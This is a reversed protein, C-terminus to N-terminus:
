KVIQVKGNQLVSNNNSVRYIYTGEPLNAVAIQANGNVQQNAVVAGSMSYIMVNVTGDAKVNLVDRAPNPYFSVETVATTRGNKIVVNIVKSYQFTGDNDIQKLRYYNNGDTTNNDTYTYTNNGTGEANMSGIKEFSSGDASHEIDFSATNKEEATKWTLGAANNVAEGDFSVWTLALPNASTTLTKTYSGTGGLAYTITRPTISTNSRSYAVKRFMVQWQAASATGTFTLVGTAANYAVTVGNLLDGSKVSLTDGATINNITVSGASIASGGTVTITTDIYQRGATVTSYNSTPRSGNVATSVYTINRTFTLSVTPDGAMGGFEVVFGLLNTSDLDNWQGTSGSSYIEVFQEGNGYNNPEGGNWNMYQGNAAVPAYSGYYYYQSGYSTNSFNTGKEPGTVWYYHGESAAQNAYATTGKAQNIYRYDDSGGLWGDAQLKQQIFSNEGASTITALYGHMGYLRMTDARYKATMWTNSGSIFQYYHGNASYSLASGVSFAIAKATGSTAATSKLTVSRLETQYSAATATGTFTLVGTTSNYSGTIGSVATYALVDGTQFGTSISVTAGTYTTSADLAIINDVTYATSASPTLQLTTSNGTIPNSASQANACVSATALAATLALQTFFNKM